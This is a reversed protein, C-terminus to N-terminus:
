KLYKEPLLPIARLVSMIQTFSVGATADVILLALARDTLPSNKIANAVEVIAERWDTERLDM